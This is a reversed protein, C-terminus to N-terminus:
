SDAVDRRRETARSSSRDLHHIRCGNDNELTELGERPQIQEDLAGEWSDVERLEPMEQRLNDVVIRPNLGIALLDAVFAIAVAAHESAEREAPPYSRTVARRKAAAAQRRAANIIERDYQM